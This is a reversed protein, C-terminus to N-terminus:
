TANLQNQSLKDLFENLEDYSPARLALKISRSLVSEPIKNINTTVFIFHNCTPSEELTKFMSSFAQQSLRQCEDIIIVRKSSFKPKYQALELLPKIDELSSKLAADLEIIDEHQNSIIKRCVVCESCCEGHKSYPCLMSMVTLRALSTKGVGPEGYLILSKPVSDEDIVRKIFNILDKHGVINSFKDIKSM